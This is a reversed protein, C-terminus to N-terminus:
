INLQLLDVFYNKGCFYSMEEIKGFKILIVKFDFTTAKKDIIIIKARFEISIQM